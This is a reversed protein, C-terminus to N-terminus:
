MELGRDFKHDEYMIYLCRIWGFIWGFAILLAIGLILLIACVITGVLPNVILSMMQYQFFTKFLKWIAFFLYKGAYVIGVIYFPILWKPLFDLEGFEPVVWIAAAVGILMLLLIRILERQVTSLM